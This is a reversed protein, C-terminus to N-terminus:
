VKGRIVTLLSVHQEQDRVNKKIQRQRQRDTQRDRERDRQRDTERERNGYDLM